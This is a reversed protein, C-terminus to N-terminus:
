LITIQQEDLTALLVTDKVVEIATLMDTEYWVDGDHRAPIHQRLAAVVCETNKDLPYDECLAEVSSLGQAAVLIEGSIVAQANIIVQSAKRACWTSNSVHDEANGKGPISDVSGPMSLTRNEMVLASLSCQVTAYGTNLGPTGSALNRALGFSMTPDILRAVRRECISALDAFAISLFDMAQAIYQGHFHGGSIPRRGSEEQLILPNDTASNIETEVINRVYTLTERVPGHVQPACRLSYPDQVRQTGASGQPRNEGPFVIDRAAQTMRQSNRTLARINQAVTMQGVHPRAEHLRADFADKECRMAELSLALGIDAHRAINEADAVALVALALSTTSGNILASADKAELPIEIELGAKTLADPASYCKGQWEIKAEEFGCVAGALHALPALDGSAGVSGQSPVVPTLGLNLFKTMRLALQPAIGSVDRAFANLRLLLMARVVDTKFSEGLGTAHSVIMNRQYRTLDEPKVRQDKFAGVGTNLSYILPGDDGLWHERIYAKTVAMRELLGDDICVSNGHRAVSIVQAITLEGQGIVVPKLM